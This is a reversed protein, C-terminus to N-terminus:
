YGLDEPLAANVKVPFLADLWRARAKPDREYLYLYRVM